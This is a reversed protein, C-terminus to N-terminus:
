GESRAAIFLVAAVLGCILSLVVFLTLMYRERSGTDLEGGRLRCLDRLFHGTASRIRDFLRLRGNQPRATSNGSGTFRKASIRVPKRGYSWVCIRLLKPKM